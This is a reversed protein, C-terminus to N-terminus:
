EHNKKNEEEKILNTGCHTCFKADPKTPSGCYPCSFKDEILKEESIGLQFYNNLGKIFESVSIKDVKLYDGDVTLGLQAALNYINQYFFSSEVGLVEKLVTISIRPSVQIMSKLKDLIQQESKGKVGELTLLFSYLQTTRYNDPRKSGALAVCFAFNQEFSTTIKLITDSGSKEKVLDTTDQLMIEQITAMQQSKFIIKEKNILLFCVGMYRTKIKTTGHIEGFKAWSEFLNTNM